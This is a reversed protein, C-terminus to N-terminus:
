DKKWTDKIDNKSCTGHPHYPSPQQMKFINATVYKFLESIFWIIQLSINLYHCLSHQKTSSYRETDSCLFMISHTHTRIFSCLFMFQRSCFNFPTIVFLAGIIFPFLVCQIPSTLSSSFWFSRLRVCINLADDSTFWNLLIFMYFTTDTTFKM